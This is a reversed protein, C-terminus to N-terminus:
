ALLLLAARGAMGEAIGLAAAAPSAGRVPAALMDDFNKVGKVIAVAHGFAEAAALSVYGCALFGRLGQITLLCSGAPLDIRDARFSHGDLTLTQTSM